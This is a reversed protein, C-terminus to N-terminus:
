EHETEVEKQIAQQTAKAIRLAHESINLAAVLLSYLNCMFVTEIVDVTNDNLVDDEFTDVLKQFLQTYAEWRHVSDNIDM